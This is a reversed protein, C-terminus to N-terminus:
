SPVTVRDPPLQAEGQAALRDILARMDEDVTDNATDPYVCKISIDKSAEQSRFLM